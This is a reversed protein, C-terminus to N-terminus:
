EQGARAGEMTRLNSGRRRVMRDRELGDKEEWSEEAARLRHGVMDEDGAGTRYRPLSLVLRDAVGESSFEDASM